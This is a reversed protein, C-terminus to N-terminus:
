PCQHHVLLGHEVQQGCGHLGVVQEVQTVKGTDDLAGQEGGWVDSLVRGRELPEPDMLHTETRPSTQNIITLLVTWRAVKLDM